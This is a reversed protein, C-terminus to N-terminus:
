KVKSLRWAALLYYFAGFAAYGALSTIGMAPDHALLIFSTGGIVSQGGSIIMPWQAGLTRRRRIGLVLQILGTLIAWIGFVVLAQPVGAKLAVAVAISTIASIFLNVYQPLVSDGKNIRIDALTGAVDWLPYILLLIFSATFSSKSLAAVFIVWLISFSARILYLSRLAKATQVKNVSVSSAAPNNTNM